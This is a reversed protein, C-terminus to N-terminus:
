GLRFFVKEFFPDFFAGIPRLACLSADLEDRGGGSGLPDRKPTGRVNSWAASLSHSCDDAVHHLADFPLEGPFRLAGRFPDMLEIVLDAFGAWVETAVAAVDTTAVDAIM